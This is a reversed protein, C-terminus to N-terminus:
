RACCIIKGIVSRTSIDGFDRSDTSNERNDGLVFVYGDQVRRRPKQFPDAGKAAVFLSRKIYPEVLRQGNIMVNQGHEGVEIMDGGLAVVRKVIKTQDDKLIVVVDGRDVMGEAFFPLIRVALVFDGDMFTDNMSASRVRSVSITGILLGVFATAIIAAIRKM